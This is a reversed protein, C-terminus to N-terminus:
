GVNDIDTMLGQQLGVISAIWWVRPALLIYQNDRVYAIIKELGQIIVDSNNEFTM